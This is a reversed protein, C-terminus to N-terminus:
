DYKLKWEDLDKKEYDLLKPKIYFYILFSIFVSLIGVATSGLYDVASYIILSPWKGSLNNISNLLTLYTAGLSRDVIKNFFGQHCILNKLQFYSSFINKILLISLILYLDFYDFLMLIAMDFIFLFCSILQAKLGIQMLNDKIKGFQVLFILQLPILLSSIMSISTKSLGKDVLVLTYVSSFYSCGSNKIFIIFLFTKFGKIKYLKSIRRMTETFTIEDEELLEEKDLHFDETFFFFLILTIVIFLVCTILCLNSINLLPLSEVTSYIYNNCFDLSNLYFYVVTTLFVGCIQGFTQCSSATTANQKYNIIVKEGLLTLAWGDVAIDQSCISFTLMFALISLPILNQETHELYFDIHNYIYYLILGCSIQSLIIWTRRKGISKFYYTDVLPSWLIKMSFPYTSLMYFGIRTYSVKSKLIMPITEYVIGIIMGQIGYLVTLLAVIM